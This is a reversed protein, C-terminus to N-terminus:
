ILNFTLQKTSYIEGDKRIEFNYKAVCSRPVDKFIFYVSMKDIWGKPVKGFSKFGM